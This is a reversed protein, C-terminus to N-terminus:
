SDIPLLGSIKVEELAKGCKICFADGPHPVYGCTPCRTQRQVAGVAQGCARCFADGMQITRGCKSCFPRSKPNAKKLAPDSATAMTLAARNKLHDLQQRLQAAELKAGVLLFEYDRDSIKGMEYDFKLDRIAALSAQYRIEYEALTQDSCSAGLGADRHTQRWLPYFILALALVVLALGIILIPLDM